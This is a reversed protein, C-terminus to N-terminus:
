SAASAAEEILDTVPRPQSALSARSADPEVVKRANMRQAMRRQNGPHGMRDATSVQYWAPKARWAPATVSDGFTSAPPAKQTVAMVLAEYWKAHASPTTPWRRRRIRSRTCSASDAGPLEITVKAWHAAGGWFGHVLVIAPKDAM